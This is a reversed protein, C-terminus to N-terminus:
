ANFIAVRAIEDDLPRDLDFPRTVDLEYWQGADKDLLDCIVHSFHLSRDGGALQYWYALARFRAAIGNALGLTAILEAADACSGQVFGRELLTQIMGPAAPDNTWGPPRLTQTGIPNPVFRFYLDMFEVIHRINDGADFADAGEIVGNAAHIVRPDLLARHAMNAMRRMTTEADVATAIIWTQAATM